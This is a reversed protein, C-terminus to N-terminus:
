IISLIHTDSVAIAPRVRGWRWSESAVEKSKGAKEEEKEVKEKLLM